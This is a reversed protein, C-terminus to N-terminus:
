KAAARQVVERMIEATRGPTKSDIETRFAVVTVGLADIAGALTMPMSEPLPEWLSLLDQAAFETGSAELAMLMGALLNRKVEVRDDRSTVEALSGVSRAASEITQGLSRYLRKSARYGHRSRRLGQAPGSRSTARSGSADLNVPGMNGRGIGASAM